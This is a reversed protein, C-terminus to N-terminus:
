WRQRCHKNSALKCQCQQSANKIRSAAKKCNTLNHKNYYPQAVEPLVLVHVADLRLFIRGLGEETIICGGPEQVLEEQEEEFTDSGPLPIIVSSVTCSVRRSKNLHREQSVESSFGIYITYPIICLIFASMM